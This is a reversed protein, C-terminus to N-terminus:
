PEEMRQLALLVMQLEQAIEDRRMATRPSDAGSLREKLTELQKRRLALRRRLVPDRRMLPHRGFAYEEPEWAAESSDGDSGPSCIMIRYEKGDEELIEEEEIRFSSEILFRRFDPLESQPSLVLRSATKATKEGRILIDRILPGGMGAIVITDAEGPALCALGDSLRTEIRDELGAEEVHGVARKLPGSRVDMAIARSYRDRRILEICVFGHDCGVDAVTKGSGCCELIRELRLSLSM